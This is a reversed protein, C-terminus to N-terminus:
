DNIECFCVREIEMRGVSSSAVFVCVCVCVYISMYVLKIYLNVIEATCM